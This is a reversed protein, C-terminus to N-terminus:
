REVGVIKEYTKRDVFYGDCLVEFVHSLDSDNYARWIIRDDFPIGKEFEKPANVPAVQYQVLKPIGDVIWELYTNAFWSNGVQTILGVLLEPQPNELLYVQATQGPGVTAFQYQLDRRFPHKLPSYLTNHDALKDLKQSLTTQLDELRGAIEDLYIIEFPGALRKVKEEDPM